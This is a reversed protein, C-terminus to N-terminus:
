LVLQEGSNRFIQEQKIKIENVCVNLGKRQNKKSKYNYHAVFQFYAIRM